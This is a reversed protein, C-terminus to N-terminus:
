SGPVFAALTASGEASLHLQFLPMEGLTGFSRSIPQLKGTVVGNVVSASFMSSYFSTLIQGPGNGAGLVKAVNADSSLEIAYSGIGIHVRGQSCGFDVRGVRPLPVGRQMSCVLEGELTSISLGYHHFTATDPVLVVATMTDFDIPSHVEFVAISTKDPSASFGLQRSGALPLTWSTLAEKKRAAIASFQGDSAKVTGQSQGATASVVSGGSSYISNAAFSGGYATNAQRTGTGILLDNITLINPETNALQDAISGKLWNNRSIEPGGGSFNEGFAFGGDCRNSEFLNGRTKSGATYICAMGGTDAFENFSVTNNIIDNYGQYSMVIGFEDGSIGTVQNHAITSKQVCDGASMAGILGIPMEIKNNEADISECPSNSSTRGGLSIVYQLGAQHFENRSITTHDGSSELGGGYWFQNGTQTSWNANVNLGKAVYNFTNNRVNWSTGTGANHFSFGYLYEILNNSTDINSIAKPTAGVGYIVSSQNLGAFRYPVNEGVVHLGNLSINTSGDPISFLNVGWDGDEAGTVGVFYITSSLDGHITTNSPVVISPANLDAGVRVLFQKNSPITLTGGAAATVAKQVAARNDTGWTASQNAGSDQTAAVTLKVHNADVFTAITTILSQNKAAANKVSITKGVDSRLFVADTCSLTTSGSSMSCTVNQKGDFGVGYNALNRTAGAHVPYTSCFILLALFIVWLM